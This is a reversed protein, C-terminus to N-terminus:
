RFFSALTAAALAIELFIRPSFGGGAPLVLTDGTSLGLAGIPTTYLETGADQDARWIVKQAREVRAEDVKAGPTPGGAAMLADMLYAEAPVLYFGPKVVGGRISFRVLVQTRVHPDILHAAMQEQVLATLESHLTGRLDIQGVPQIDVAPGPHVPFTDSLAPEGEVIVVIHDGPRFDGRELRERLIEARQTAVERATEPLEFSVGAQDLEALEAELAARTGNGSLSETKPSQAVAPSASAWLCTFAAIWGVRCTAGVIDPLGPRGIRTM